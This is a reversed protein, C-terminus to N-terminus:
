HPQTDSTAGPDSNVNTATDAATPPVATTRAVGALRRRELPAAVLPTCCIILVILSLFTALWALEIHPPAFSFTVDSKGAPLAVSQFTDEIPNVATSRGNVEATWGPMMVELRTLTTAQACQASVEDKNSFELTCGQAAFYTGTTPLQYIDATPSSQVKSLQHQAAEAVSVTNPLVVLYRVGVASFAAINDFFAQLGSPGKPDIRNGGTLLQPNANTDLKTSVYRDWRKPTPLDNVNLQAIGFYSGYNPAIPGISYFRDSGLNQRLFTIPASDMSNNRSASMQPLGFLVITEFAVLVVALYRASPLRKISAACVIIGFGVAAAGAVSVFAVNKRDEFDAVANYYRHALLASVVLILLFGGAAFAIDRWRREGRCLRDMGFAALIIVAMSLAAASYRYFATQDIGPVLNWAKTALQLLGFIRVVIAGAFLVLLLKARRFRRDPLGLLALAVLSAGLYGGVNAWFYTSVPTLSSFITGGAYPLVLSYISGHALTVKSFTSAHGGVNAQGVFDFFAILAPAALMGGLAAGTLLKHIFRVRLGPGIDFIRIVAWLGVVLGDIFAVEPFGAVLSLALGVAIVGFGGRQQRRARNLAMEVGLLVVPLFAIPAFVANTLWAHAGNLAFLLGCAAAALRCIGLRRLFALTALGAIMELLVHIYLLGNRFVMLVVFPSFAGSQMEGALPAGFGEDHNWYPIEGRMWSNMSAKGLAEATFGDNPDITYLGRMWTVQPSTQLGARTDVPTVHVVGTLPLLNAILVGVVIFLVGPLAPSRRLKTLRGIM